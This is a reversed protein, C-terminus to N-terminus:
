KAARATVLRSNVDTWLSRWQERESDPLRRLPEPDRLGALDLETRWRELREVLKLRDAAPRTELERSRMALEDRLWILAQERWRARQEDSLKSGDAGRGCGAVGAACAANYRCGQQSEALGSDVAFAAAYLGAEAARRDNFQCAGLLTLRETNDQPQYTGELFAPLNPVIMTEAERRLIHYIWAERNDAKSGHWDSSLIAAGLATRAEDVRGLRHQAMALVLRAAPVLGASAEGSMISIASEFHGLRYEALGKSFLFYPKVWAIAKTKDSSLARDVLAIAEDLQGPAAPLLLLVRGTREAERPDTGTRFRGLLAECARCYEAEQGLFLCLEAYGDWDDYKTPNSDLLERWSIRAEEWREQRILVGRLGHHARPLNHDLTLARHFQDLAEAYRGVANLHEGLLSQLDARNPYFSLARRTEDIAEERRVQGSMALSSLTAALNVHTEGSTPDITIAQRYCKEAELFQGAKALSLGLNNYVIGTGPRIALAAQYYRVADGPKTGILANGLNLNAWFDGPHAEQMRTLFPIPDDGANKLQKACALLLPVSEDAFSTATVLEDRAAKTKWTAPDRARGRWGSPNRDTLRGVDLLWGKREADQTCTFWDDLAAVLAEDIDSSAVRAAVVSAPEHIQGMGADRFAAEYEKDTQADRLIGGASASRNLRISDLRAVLELNYVAQDIRAQLEPPAAPGLRGKVRELAARAGVFDSRRERAKADRVDETAAQLIVMRQGSVRLWGGILTMALVVAIVVAGAFAAAAPRRRAWLALREFRGVCRAVIPEGREFRRLDDALAAASAYRREPEKRLCTICITEADRAVRTNLRSPLVPDQSVVQILTEASTEARFPPRGTLMEYLIAGLAYVDAAPGVARGSGGAQEPAMYSPTGMRAGTLTMSAENELRRALGFDTIKPTGDATLLVNGPKLDRHLIGAVHAVDVAAALRAVM